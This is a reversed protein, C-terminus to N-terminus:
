SCQKLIPIPSFLGIHKTHYLITDNIISTCHSKIDDIFLCLTSHFFTYLSRWHLSHGMMTQIQKSLNSAFPWPKKLFQLHLLNMTNMMRIMTNMMHIMTKTICIKGVFRTLKPNPNHNLNLNPNPNPFAMMTEM